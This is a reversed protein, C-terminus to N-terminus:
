AGGALLACVCAILIIGVVTFLTWLAIRDLNKTSITHKEPYAKHENFPKNIAENYEKQREDYQKKMVEITVDSNLPCVDPLFKLPLLRYICLCLTQYSQHKYPNRYAAYIELLANRLKSDDICNACRLAHSYFTLFEKEQNLQIIGTGM